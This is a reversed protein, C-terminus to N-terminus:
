LGNEVHNSQNRLTFGKYYFLPPEPNLSNYLVITTRSRPGISGLVEESAIQLSNIYAQTPDWHRVQPETHPDMPLTYINLRGILVWQIVPSRLASEGAVVRSGVM